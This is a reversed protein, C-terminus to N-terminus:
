PSVACTRGSARGARADRTPAEFPRQLTLCEFLMVGLSWVDTRRDMSITHHTLQEPSMYGPEVNMEIQRQIEGALMLNVQYRGMPGTFRTPLDSTLGADSWQWTELPTIVVTAGPEPSELDVRGFLHNERLAVLQPALLQDTVINQRAEDLVADAVAIPLATASGTGLAVVAGTNDILPGGQM